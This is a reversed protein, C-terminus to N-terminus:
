KRVEVTEQQGQGIEGVKPQEISVTYRRLLAQYFKENAETRQANTWERRVADRLDKLEPLSGDKRETLLVLHVGYGSEISGQWQGLPLEGLKAAFKEGFQKSVESTPVADFNQDLLLSDGLRSIDASIGAQRLQALIENMKRSVNAGHRQPDLYIQKFTLQQEFRFKEPHAQLFTQLQADTPTAQEVVSDSIFDLKQRLRRRIVSDDQDLGLATAERACVEERIYDNILGDLEFQTPPRQWTRASGTVLSEIRGQTVVISEPRRDDDRSIFKYGVFVLTGLLIFHVLPEYLLKKM